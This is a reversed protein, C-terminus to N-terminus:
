VISKWGQSKYETLSILFFFGPYYYLIARPVLRFINAELNQLHIFDTLFVTFTRPFFVEEPAFSPAAIAMQVLDTRPLLPRVKRFNLHPVRGANCVCFGSFFFYCKILQTSIAM